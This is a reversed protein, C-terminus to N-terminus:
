LFGGLLGEGGGGAEAWCSKFADGGSVAEMVVWRGKVESIQSGGM